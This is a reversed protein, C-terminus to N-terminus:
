ATFDYRNGRHKGIHPTTSYSIHCELRLARSNVTTYIIYVYIPNMDM